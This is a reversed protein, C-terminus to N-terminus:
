QCQQHQGPHPPHGCTDPCTHGLKRCTLQSEGRTWQTWGPHHPHRGSTKRVHWSGRDRQLSVQASELDLSCFHYHQPFPCTRFIHRPNSKLFTEFLVSSKIPCHFITFNAKSKVSLTKHLTSLNTLDSFIEKWIGTLLLTLDHDLKTKNPPM